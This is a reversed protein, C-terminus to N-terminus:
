NSGTAAAGPYYSLDPQYRWVTDERLTVLRNLQDEMKRYADDGMAKQLSATNDLEAWKEFGEAFQYDAVGGLLTRRVLLTKMGIQKLGPILQNKALEGFEDAGGTRVRIRVAHLYAPPFPADATRIGIDALPRDITVQVGELYQALRATRMAREQETTMKTYPNQGDRDGFSTLPTFVEFDMANGVEGRYIVRFQDPMAAKKYSAAIQKEMDQFEQFRDVRVRYHVVNLLKPAAPTQGFSLLVSGFLASTFTATFFRAKM